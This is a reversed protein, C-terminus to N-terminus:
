EEQSSYIVMSERAEAHKSLVDTLPKIYTERRADFKERSEFHSLIYSRRQEHLDYYDFMDDTFNGYLKEASLNDDAQAPQAVAALLGAVFFLTIYRSIYRIM